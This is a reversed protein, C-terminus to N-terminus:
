DDFFTAWPTNSLESRLADYNEVVERLPRKQQKRTQTALSHIPVGIHDQVRRLTSERREVLDEYTISLVSHSSFREEAERQLRRAAEFDEKCHQPNLTVTPNESPPAIGGTAGVGWRGSKQALAGSVQQALLNERTLHIIAIDTRRQLFDWLDSEAKKWDVQEDVHTWWREYPPQEWWMPKSRGQTYLLKFGVAEISRPYRTFVDERLFRVPDTNRRHVVAADTRKHGFGPVDFPVHDPALHFLEFFMLVAEHDDLFSTLMTSGTRINCLIVFPRYDTHGPLLSQRVLWYHWRM